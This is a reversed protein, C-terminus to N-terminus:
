FPYKPPEDRETLWRWTSFEEWDSPGGIRSGNGSAGFGGFPANRDSAVTQDNVHVIGTRLRESLKRARPVDASIIGATLGYETENGLHVAEDETRFRTICAVPGFIEEEFASMGPAVEDLVTAPFFLGKAEGGAVLRAGAQVAEDVLRSIRDVQHQNIVPGLQVQERLPDGVKLLRAKDVLRSVLEDAVNQHVLIRGAAMCIQGQHMWSGFAAASAALELDADELVILPNKGGLELSAKKLHRGCLEGVRRGAGTSGTFAVMRVLPHECLAEGVDAGGPLVHLAGAPLGAEQFIRAILFGGSLPTQPDPKIIVSNGAGLAPAVARVTLLLPFNFPSIVAVVGHPVRRGYSMRGAASPFILGQPESLMAAARNLSSCTTRLEMEAKGRTGGTERMILEALEEWHAEVLQAARRFVRERAEPAMRQWEHQGNGAKQAARDVDAVEAQGVRAMVEGTAKEYVDCTLSSPIWEGDFLAATGDVTDELLANASM